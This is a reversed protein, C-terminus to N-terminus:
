HADQWEISGPLCPKPGDSAPTMPRWDPVTGPKAKVGAMILACRIQSVLVSSSNRADDVWFTGPVEIGTESGSGDARLSTIAYRPVSPCAAAAGGGAPVSGTTM